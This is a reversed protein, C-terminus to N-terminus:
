LQALFEALLDRGEKVQRELEGFESRCLQLDGEKAAGELRMALKRVRSLGVSGASGKLTHFARAAQQADGSGCALRGQQLWQNSAEDFAAALEQGFDRDGDLLEALFSRDLAGESM